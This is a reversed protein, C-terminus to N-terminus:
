AEDATVEWTDVTQVGAHAPAPYGSCVAVFVQRGLTSLVDFVPTLDIAKDLHDFYGYIYLPRDDGEKVADSLRLLVNDGDKDRARCKALFERTDEESVALRDSLLNVGIRHEGMADANRVYTVAYHKEDMEVDAYLVFRGDDVRDPDETAGFDGLLERLLDLALEAHHGRVFCVPATIDADFHLATASEIFLHRVTM